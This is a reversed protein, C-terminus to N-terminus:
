SPHTLYGLIFSLVAMGAVVLRTRPAYIWSNARRWFVIAAERLEEGSGLGHTSSSALVKPPRDHARHPLEGVNRGTLDNRWSVAFLGNADTTYRAAKSSSSDRQVSAAQNVSACGYPRRRNRASPEEPLQSSPVM